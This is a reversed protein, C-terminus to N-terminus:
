VNETTRKLPCLHLQAWKSDISGVEESLDGAEKELFWGVLVYKQYAKKQKM